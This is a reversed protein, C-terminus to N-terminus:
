RPPAAYRPSSSGTAGTEDNNHGTAQHTKNRVSQSQQQVTKRQHQTELPGAQPSRMSTPSGAAPGSVTGQAPGPGNQNTQAYVQTTLLLAGALALSKGIM